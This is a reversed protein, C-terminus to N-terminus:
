IYKDQWLMFALKYYARAKVRYYKRESMGLANYVEYDMVKDEGMCSNIIVMREELNLRNVCRQIKRAFTEKTQELSAIQVASEETSSHFQNSFTPVLSFTQTIKPMNDEPVTLLFLRYKEFIAEVAVKTSQRDIVPLEFSLQDAM